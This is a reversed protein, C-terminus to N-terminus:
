SIANGSGSTAGNRRCPRLLQILGYLAHTDGQLEIRSCVRTTTEARRCVRLVEGVSPTLLLLLRVLARSTLFVASAWPLWVRQPEVASHLSAREGFCYGYPISVLDSVRVRLTDLDREVVEAVQKPSTHQEHQDYLPLTVAKALVMTRTAYQVRVDMSRRQLEAALCETHYWGQEDAGGCAGPHQLVALIM